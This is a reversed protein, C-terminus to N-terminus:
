MRDFIRHKIEITKISNVALELLSSRELGLIELAFEDVYINQTSREDLGIKLIKALYDACHLISANIRNIGAELPDHHYKIGAKQEESLRIKNCILSSVEVHNFILSEKETKLSDYYCEQSNEFIDQADNEIYHLLVIKGVDHLLGSVYFADSEHETYDMKLAILKALVATTVSHKFFGNNIYGFAFFQNDSLTNNRAALLLTKITNPELSKLADQITVIKRPHSFYSTNVLRLLNCLLAPDSSFIEEYDAFSATDSECIRNLFYYVPASTPLNEIKLKLDQLRNEQLIVPDGKFLGSTSASLKGSSHRNEIFRRWYEGM